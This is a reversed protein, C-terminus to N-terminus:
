NFVKKYVSPYLHLFDKKNIYNNNAIMIEEVLKRYTGKLLRFISIDLPQLLYSIHLPM